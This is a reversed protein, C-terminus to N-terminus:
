VSQFMIPVVHQRLRDLEAANHQLLHHGWTANTNERCDQAMASGITELSGLDPRLAEPKTLTGLIFVREALHGPVRERAHQLRAEDGDCDILLIMFRNPYREMVAVHESLFDEM